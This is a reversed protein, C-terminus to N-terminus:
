LKNIYFLDFQYVKKIYKKWLYWLYNTIKKKMEKSLVKVFKGTKYFTIYDIPIINIPSLKDTVNVPDIYLRVGDLFTNPFSSNNFVCKCYVGDGRKIVESKGIIQLKDSLTKINEETWKM